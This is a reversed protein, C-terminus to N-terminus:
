ALPLHFRDLWAILEPLRSCGTKEKLRRLHTYITNASLKRTRAYAAPTQGSQLALALDAEAATLGFVSQLLSASPATRQLPDHVFVLAIIGGTDNSGASTSFPRVAVVYPPAGAGREVAIDLPAHGNLRHESQMAIGALAEAYARAARPSAFELEGRMMAIGDGRAAMESLARNAVVVEGRPGIMAVGDALRDIAERLGAGSAALGDLRRGVDVAQRLHPMLRRMLDIESETVHGRRRSRQITAVAVENASRHLVGSVFYRHGTRPLFDAYYPDRDMQTEDLVKYDWLLEVSPQRMGYAARPNLAAFEDAYLLQSPPPINYARLWLLGGTPVAYAELTAASGGLLAAISALAEPWADPNLGAGHIAEITDLLADLDGM